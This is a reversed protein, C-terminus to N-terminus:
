CGKRQRNKKQQRRSKEYELLLRLTALEEKSMTQLVNKIEELDKYGKASIESM